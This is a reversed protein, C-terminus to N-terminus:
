PIGRAWTAMWVAPPPISDTAMHHGKVQNGYHTQQQLSCCAHSIQQWLISSRHPFSPGWLPNGGIPGPLLQLGQLFPPSFSSSWWSSISWYGGISWCGSISQCSSICSIWTRLVDVLLDWPLEGSHPVWLLFPFDGPSKGGPLLTPHGESFPPVRALLLSGPVPHWLWHPGGTAGLLTVSQPLAMQLPKNNSASLVPQSWGPQLLHLDPTDGVM